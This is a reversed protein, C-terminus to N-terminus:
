DGQRVQTQVATQCQRAHHFPIANRCVPGFRRKRPDVRSRCFGAAKGGGNSPAEQVAKPGGAALKVLRLGIVHQAEFGSLAIDKSLQWWAKAM